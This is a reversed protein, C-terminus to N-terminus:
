YHEHHSLNLWDWSGFTFSDVILFVTYQLTYKEHGQMKKKQDKILRLKIRICSGHLIYKRINIYSGIHGSAFLSLGM